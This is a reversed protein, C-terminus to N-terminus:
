IKYYYKFAFQHGESKYLKNRERWHNKFSSNKIQDQYDFVVLYEKSPHLRVGRGVSQKIRIKSRGGDPFHIAMINKINVGTSMTEYTAFLLADDNNQMYEKIQMRESQNVTGHIKFCKYDSLKTQAYDMLFKVYEVSEVLIVQNGKIKSICDIIVDTRPQYTQFFKKEFRYKEVGVIGQKILDESLNNHELYEINVQFIKTPVIIGDDTADKTQKTLVSPGFMSVINLYDLSNEEPYTGTMGFWFMTKTSKNYIEKRISYIKATHVEDVIIVGFQEFWDLDYNKVSQWNGIVINAEANRKSNAYISSIKMTSGNHVDFENIFESETQKCLDTRPVVILIKNAVGKDLYKSNNLINDLLYKCYLYTIFTKGGGTAVEIRAIKFLLARYVSEQQYQYSENNIDIYDPFKLSNLWDNFNERNIDANFLIETNEITPIKGTMAPIANKVLEQMFQAPVFSENILFSETITKNFSKIFPKYEKRTVARRIAELNKLDNKDELTIQIFNKFNKGAVCKLKM